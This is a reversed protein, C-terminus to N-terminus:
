FAVRASADEVNASAFELMDAAPGASNRRGHTKNGAKSKAHCYLLSSTCIGAGSSRMEEVLKGFAVTQVDDRFDLAGDLDTEQTYKMILDSQVFPM